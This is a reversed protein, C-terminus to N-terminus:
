RARDGRGRARASRAASTSRHGRARVRVRGRAARGDSDTCRLRVGKPDPEAAFEAVGLHLDLRASFLEHAEAQMAESVLLPMRHGLDFVSVEVGLRHMASGLELGIVGSGIVALSSPLRPLEFVSENTLLRDGLGQLTSPVIPTSGTAIVIAKAQVTVSGADTDVMLSTPGVFRAWGRLRDQADIAETSRVAGGAFRDRERRVRAMVAAGDIRVNGVEVGFAAAERAQQAADAAAILLKSPMCGVRACTTGYPGGEILLVRKAGHKLAQQRAIM